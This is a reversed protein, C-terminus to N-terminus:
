ELPPIKKLPKNSAALRWNELLEAKHQAAWETVLGLARPPLHGALLGLSAIEILAKSRGYRAHFHPPPHDGFYMTVIIGFFRSIEPVAV